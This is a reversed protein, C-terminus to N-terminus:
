SPTGSDARGSYARGDGTGPPAAVEPAEGPKLHKSKWLIFGLYYVYYGVLVFFLGLTLPSSVYGAAGTEPGATIAARAGHTMEYTQLLRYAVRGIFLLSVAIGTYTHPVYYRQTGISEFRTRSAGWLALLVGAALGSFTAAAFAGSRLGTTILLLVGIVSLLVIRFVMRGPRLPQRGFSRRLRRYVALVILAAVLYPGFHSFDQPM